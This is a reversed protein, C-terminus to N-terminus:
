ALPRHGLQKVIASSELFSLGLWRRRRPQSDRAGVLRGGRRDSATLLGRKDTGSAAEPPRRAIAGNGLDQILPRVQM